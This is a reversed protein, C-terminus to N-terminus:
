IRTSIRRLSWQGRRDGRWSSSSCSYIGGQHGTVLLLILPFSSSSSHGGGVHQPAARHQRLSPLRRHKRPPPPYPPPTSTSPHLHLPPPHPSSKCAAGSPTPHVHPAPWNSPIHLILRLLSSCLLQFRQSRPPGQARRWSCPQTDGFRSYQMGYVLSESRKSNQYKFGWQNYMLLLKEVRQTRAKSETNNIEFAPKENEWQVFDAPSTFFTELATDEFIM